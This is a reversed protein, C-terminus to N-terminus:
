LTKYNDLLYVTLQGILNKSQIIMFNTYGICKLDLQSVFSVHICIKIIKKMGRCTTKPLAFVTNDSSIIAINQFIRLKDPNTEAALNCVWGGM